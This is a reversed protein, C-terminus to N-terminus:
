GGNVLQSKYISRLYALVTDGVCVAKAGTGAVLWVEQVLTLHLYM